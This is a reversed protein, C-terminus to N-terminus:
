KANHLHLFHIPAAEQIDKMQRDRSKSPNWLLQRTNTKLFNLGDQGHQNNMYHMPIKSNPNINQLWKTNLISNLQM